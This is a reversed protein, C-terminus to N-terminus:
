EFELRKSDIDKSINAILKVNDRIVVNNPDIRAAQLLMREYEDAPDLAADVEDATSAIRLLARADKLCDLARNNFLIALSRNDDRLGQLVREAGAYDGLEFLREGRARCLERKSPDWDPNWACAQEMFAASQELLEIRRAQGVKWAARMRSLGRGYYHWCLMKNEEAHGRGPTCHRALFDGFPGTVELVEAAADDDGQDHLCLFWYHGWNLATHLASIQPCELLLLIELEELAAPYNKDLKSNEGLRKIGEGDTLTREASATLDVGWEDILRGAREAFPAFDHEDGAQGTAVASFPGDELLKRTAALGQRVGNLCRVYVRASDLDDEALAQTFRAKQSVLLEEILEDRLKDDAAGPLTRQEFHERLAPETLLVTWLATATVRAEDGARSLAEERALIAFTHWLEIDGGAESTALRWQEVIRADAGAWLARRLEPNAAILEALRPHRGPRQQDAIPSGPFLARLLAKVHQDAEFDELVRRVQRPLYLAATRLRALATARDDDVAALAAQHCLFRGYERRLEDLRDDDSPTQDLARRWAQEATEFDGIVTAYRAALLSGIGGPEDAAATARQVIPALATAFADRRGRKAAHQVLYPLARGLDVYGSTGHVAFVRVLSDALAASEGTAVQGAAAAAALAALVTDPAEFPLRAPLATGELADALVTVLETLRAPRADEARMARLRRAAEERSGEALAIGAGVLAPLPDDPTSDLEDGNRLAVCAAASGAALSTEASPLRKDLQILFRAAEARASADEAFLAVRLVAWIPAMDDVGPRPWDALSQILPADVSEPARVLRVVALLRATWPQDAVDQWTLDEASTATALLRAAHDLLSVEFRGMARTTATRLQTSARTAATRAQELNGSMWAEAASRLSLLAMAYGAQALGRDSLRSFTRVADEQKGAHASAWGILLRAKPGRVDRLLERVEGSRGDHLADLALLVAARDRGLDRARRLMQRGREPDTARVALATWILREAAPLRNFLAQDILAKLESTQKRAAAVGLATRLAEFLDPQSAEPTVLSQLDVEAPIPGDGILAKRAAAANRLPEPITPAPAPLPEGPDADQLLCGLAWSGAKGALAAYSERVGDPDQSLLHAWALHYHVDADALGAASVKALLRQAQQVDGDLLHARGLAYECWPGTDRGPRIWTLQATTAPPTPSALLPTTSKWRVEFWALVQCLTLLDACRPSLAANRGGVAVGMRFDRNHLHASLLGRMAEAHGPARGLATEFMRAAIEPREYLLLEGLGLAFATDARPVPGGIRVALSYARRLKEDESDFGVNLIGGVLGAVEAPPQPLRTMVDAYVALQETDLADLTALKAAAHLRIEHRTTPAYYIDTLLRYARQYDPASGRAASADILPWWSRPLEFTGLAAFRGGLDRLRDFDADQLQPLFRPDLMSQQFDLWRPAAEAGLEEFRQYLKRLRDLARAPDPQALAGAWANELRGLRNFSKGLSREPQAAM